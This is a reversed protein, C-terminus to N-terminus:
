DRKIYNRATTFCFFNLNPPYSVPKSPAGQGHKTSGSASFGALERAVAVSCLGEMRSRKDM